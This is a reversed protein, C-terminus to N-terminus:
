RGQAATSRKGHFDRCLAFLTRTDPGQEFNSQHAERYARLAKRTRPGYKGDIRYSYLGQERLITQLIVIDSPSSERPRKLNLELTPEWLVYWKPGEGTLERWPLSSFPFGPDQPLERLGALRLGSPLNRRFPTIDGEEVASQLYSHMSVINFSNLFKLLKKKRAVEPPPKSASPDRPEIQKRIRHSGEKVSETDQPGEKSDSSYPLLKLAGASNEGFLSNTPGPMLMGAAFLLVAAASLLAATRRQRNRRLNERILRQQPTIERLASGVIRGSVTHTAHAAMAHLARDMILDLLRTNGRSALWLLRAGRSTIPLQAGARSLKFSCYSHIEERSLPQLTCQVYIRSQLQRLRETNLVRRLEEQGALLIQVLKHGGAEMNSLMRLCELAEESLNHAEDVIIACNGGNENVGLFHSHLMDLLLSRSAGRPAKLGFDAIIAELLELPGVSTNLVWATHLGREQHLSGLLQLLLSTKGVGVEGLLLLFGKRSVIGFHLEHLIRQTQPTSFYNEGATAPTFPNASLNHYRTVIQPDMPRESRFLPHLSFMCYCGLMRKHVILGSLDRVLSHPHKGIRTPGASPTNPCPFPRASHISEPHAFFLIEQVPLTSLQRPKTVNNKPKTWLM